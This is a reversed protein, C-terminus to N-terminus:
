QNSSSKKTVTSIQFKSGTGDPEINITETSGSSSSVITCHNQDSSVVAAGPFKSKYFTCVKDFSDSTQFNATVTHIGGFTATNAGNKQITAGPYLDVGLDKVVTDPDKSSEITGFPTEVKVDDGNQSFRAHKAARYVFFTFSATALIGLLIVGGVVLLVIKLANNNKPPPAAIPPLNTPAPTVPTAPMGPSVPSSALVAAGCKSCFRTGVSLQAGCSNCFAM